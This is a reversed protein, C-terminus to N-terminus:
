LVEKNGEGLSWDKVTEPMPCVYNDLPNTQQKILGIVSGVTEQVHYELDSVVVATYSYDPRMDMVAIIADANLWVEKSRDNDAVHLCIFRGM